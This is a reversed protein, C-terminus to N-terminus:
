DIAAGNTFFVDLRGDGDYDLLAVGGGMTEPLFKLATKSAAHEFSIDVTETVDSFREPRSQSDPTSGLLPVAVCAVILTMSRRRSTRPGASSGRAPTVPTGESGT